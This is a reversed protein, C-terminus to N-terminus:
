HVAGPVSCYILLVNKQIILLIEELQAVEPILSLSLATCSTIKTQCWWFSM